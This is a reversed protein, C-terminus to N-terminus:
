VEIFYKQLGLNSFIAQSFSNWTLDIGSAKHQEMLCSTKTGTSIFGFIEICFMQCCQLQRSDVESTNNAHSCYKWHILVSLGLCFPRWKGSSMKLHMKKFSFLHIKLSIESFNTGLLRILLIGANTWIIAQRRGPSLGNDSGINTHKSICIHTVMGWHTLFPYTATKAM